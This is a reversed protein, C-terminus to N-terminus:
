FKIMYNVYVNDPRTENGGESEIIDNAYSTNTTGTVVSQDSGGGSDVIIGSMRFGISHRHRGGGHNHSKFSDSQYSGVNNNTNGGSNLYMRNNKDEDINSDGSVGRLFMGRTDPLNFTNSGDGAGWATGIINYLASYDTRNLEKGDCLMWGSPIKDEEGAFPMISGIPAPQANGAVEAYPVSLLKTNSIEQFTGNDRIEVKLWYESASFDVETYQNVTGGSKIGKGITLSFVGFEDTTAVHIEAWTPQQAFADPLLSFQIEINESAKVQGDTNRAVAQYSFGKGSNQAYVGSCIITIFILLFLKKM